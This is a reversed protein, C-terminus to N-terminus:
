KILDKVRVRRGFSPPSLPFHHSPSPPLPSAHRMNCDEGQLFRIGTRALMGSEQLCSRLTAIEQSMQSHASELKTSMRRTEASERLLREMCELRATDQEHADPITSCAPRTGAISLLKTVHSRGFCVGRDLANKRSNSLKRSILLM